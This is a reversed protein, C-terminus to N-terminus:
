FTSKVKVKSAKRQVEIALCGAAVYQLLYNLGRLVYFNM